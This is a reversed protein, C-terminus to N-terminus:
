DVIHNMWNTQDEIDFFRTELIWEMMKVFEEMQGNKFVFLCVAKDFQFIINKKDTNFSRIDKIQIVKQLFTKRTKDFLLIKDNFLEIECQCKRKEEKFEVSSTMVHFRGKQVLAKIKRELSVEVLRDHMKARTNVIKCFQLFHSLAKQLMVIDSHDHPTNKLLVDVLMPYRMARQVPQILLQDLTDPAIRKESEGIVSKGNPTKRLEKWALVINDYETCYTLLPSIITLITNIVDGINTDYHYDNAVMKLKRVVSKSSSICNNLITNYKLSDNTETKLPESFLSNISEMTKLLNKETEYFELFANRRKMLLACEYKQRVLFGRITNQLTVINDNNNKKNNQSKSLLFIPRIPTMHTIKSTKLPFSSKLRPSEEEPLQLCFTPSMRVSNRCLSKRLSM